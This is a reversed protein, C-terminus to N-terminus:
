SSRAALRLRRLVVEAQEGVEERAGNLVERLVANTNAEMQIITEALAKLRMLSKRSKEKYPLAIEPRELIKVLRKLDDLDPPDAVNYILDIWEQKLPAPIQQYAELVSTDKGLYLSRKLQLIWGRIERARSGEIGVASIIGNWREEIQMCIWNEGQEPPLYLYLLRNQAQFLPELLEKPAGELERARRNLAEVAELKLKREKSDKLVVAEWQERLFGLELKILSFVLGSKALTNRVSDALTNCATLRDEAVQHLAELSQQGLQYSLLETGLARSLRKIVQTEPSGVRITHPRFHIKIVAAVVYDSEEWLTRGDHTQPYTLVGGNNWFLDEKRILVPEMHHFDEGIGAVQLRVSRPDHEPDEATWSKQKEVCWAMAELPRGPDDRFALWPKGPPNYDSREPLGWSITKREPDIIGSTVRTAVLEPPRGISYVTGKFANPLCLLITEIIERCAKELLEKHIEISM